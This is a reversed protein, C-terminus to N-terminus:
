VSNCPFAWLIILLGHGEKDESEKKYQKSRWIILPFAYATFSCFKTNIIRVEWLGLSQKRPQTVLM